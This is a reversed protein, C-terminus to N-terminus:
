LMGFGAATLHLGILLFVVGGGYWFRGDDLSSIVQRAHDKSTLLFFVSELLMVIGFVTLIADALTAWSALFLVIALGGALDLFALTFRLERDEAFDHMYETFADRRVLYVASVIVTYLGAFQLIEPPAM